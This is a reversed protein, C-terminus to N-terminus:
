KVCEMFKIIYGANKSSITLNHKVKYYWVGKIRIM